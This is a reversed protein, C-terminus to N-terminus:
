KVQRDEIDAAAVLKEAQVRAVKFIPASRIWPACGPDDSKVQLLVRAESEM